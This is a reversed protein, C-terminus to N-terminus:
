RGTVWEFLWRWGSVFGVVLVAAILFVGRGIILAPFWFYLVALILSAASLAQTLRTVFERRDVLLRLDYLDTYYLCVQTVAAILLAKAIGNEYLAVDIAFEGLRVYAAITIASVILATELVILTLSRASLRQALVRLM